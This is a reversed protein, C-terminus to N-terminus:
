INYIKIWHVFNAQIDKGVHVPVHQLKLYFFKKSGAQDIWAIRKKNCYIFSKKAFLKLRYISLRIDWGM